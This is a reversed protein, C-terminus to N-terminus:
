YPMYVRLAWDDSQMSSIVHFFMFVVFIAARSVSVHHSISGKSAMLESSASSLESLSIKKEVQVHPM